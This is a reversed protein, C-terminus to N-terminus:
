CSLQAALPAQLCPIFSSYFCSISLLVRDSRAPQWCPEPQWASLAGPDVQVIRKLGNYVQARIAAQQGLARRLFGTLESLLSVGCGASLGGMQSLTSQTALSHAPTLVQLTVRWM